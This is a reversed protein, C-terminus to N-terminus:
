NTLSTPVFNENHMKIAAFYCLCAFDNHSLWAAKGLSLFECYMTCVYTVLNLVMDFRANAELGLVYCSVLSDWCTSLLGLLAAPQFVALNVSVTVTCLREVWVYQMCVHYNVSIIDERFFQDQRAVITTDIFMECPIPSNLNNYISATPIWSLHSTQHLQYPFLTALWIIISLIKLLMWLFSGPKFNTQM